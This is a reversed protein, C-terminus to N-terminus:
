SLIKDKKDNPQIKIFYKERYARTAINENDQLDIHPFSFTKRNM